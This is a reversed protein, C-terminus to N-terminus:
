VFDPSFRTVFPWSQPPLGDKVPNQEVYQIARRIDEISDLYVIWQGEAWCQPVKGVENFDSLFPHVKEAVLARTAAGKMFNVILESPQRHRAFVVHVHDPMIACAWVTVSGKRFSEQLGHGVARGQVGNFVVPPRTLLEKAALRSATDHIRHAVSRRETTKTAPGHKRYLEYMGLFESWSGRPDNPLWFGYAGFIAHYGLVM